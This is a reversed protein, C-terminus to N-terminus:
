EPEREPGRPADADGIVSRRKIDYRASAAPEVDLRLGLRYLQGRAVENDNRTTVRMDQAVPRLVCENVEELKDFTVGLAFVSHNASPAFPTNCSEDAAAHLKLVAVRVRKDNDKRRQKVYFRRFSVSTGPETQRDFM